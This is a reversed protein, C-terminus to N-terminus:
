TIALADYQRLMEQMENVPTLYLATASGDAHLAALGTAANNGTTDLRFGLSELGSLVRARIQPQHEGVGGGFSLADLGGLVALYSGIMKRIQYCYHDIALDAESGPGNESAATMILRMDGDCAALAKLGSRNNLLDALEAPTWAEVTLLHLLIGPDVSGSRRAMTVGELPTYGMSTDVVKNGRWASVSCGSGLQITIVREAARGAQTQCSQVQRWQSRHAIGHFGYRRVPWRESLHRPLAYDAAQSPLHEYLGADYIAYQRADPCHRTCTQVLALALANHLPALPKWHQIKALVTASLFEAAECVKGAHVIRHLIVTPSPLAALWDSLLGSLQEPPADFSQTVETHWEGGKKDGKEDGNERRFLTLKLSSSGANCALVTQTEANVM